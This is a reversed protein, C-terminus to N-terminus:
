SQPVSYKLGDDLDKAVQVFMEDPNLGHSFYVALQGVNASFAAKDGNLNFGSVTVYPVVDSETYLDAIPWGAFPHDFTMSAQPYRPKVLAILDMACQNTACYEPDVGSVTPTGNTVTRPDIVSSVQVGSRFPEATKPGGQGFYKQAFLANTM